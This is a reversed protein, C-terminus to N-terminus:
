SENEAQERSTKGLKYALLLLTYVAGNAKREGGETGDLKALAKDTWDAATEKTFEFDDTIYNVEACGEM